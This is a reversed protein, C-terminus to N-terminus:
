GSSDRPPALLAGFDLELQERAERAHRAADFLHAYVKLTIAPNAHGLQRSVFVPDRGQSILVSAFTHRLVHFSVGGLGARDAAKSLGRATLNRHGITGGSSACFVLDEDRSFPSAVRLTRLERALQSMLVVDRRAAPTKLATRQGRRSMQCRVCLAQGGFDVDAWVLGLLESLRVGSFLACAIAVRYRDPAASLLQEMQSKSLFRRRGSGPKPREASTLRDAPSAPIIGHRVAYGLVLHLPAWYNHVSHPAYGAARMRRIWAVLEDPTISRLQRAGLEPVVHRRLGVEYIEFTRPSMEGALQRADQEALWDAAVEGFTARPRADIPQTGQVEAAFKDRLRRAEMLGVQGLARWRPTRAGRPTACAHYYSGIRYLGREVRVRKEKSPM